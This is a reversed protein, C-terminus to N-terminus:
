SYARIQYVQARNLGYTKLIELELGMARISSFDHRAFSSLNGDVHELLHSHGLLDYYYLKYEKILSPISATDYSRPKKDFIFDYSPDFTIEVRSLDKAQEWKIELFEPYKFDTPQSVWLDPLKSPRQNATTVNQPDYPSPAPSIKLLPGPAPGPQESLVPFHQGYANSIKSDHNAKKRYLIVGPLSSRQIPISIAQSFNVELFHWGPELNSCKPHLEVWGETSGEVALTTSFLCPGPLNGQYGTGSLLRFEITESNELRLLLEIQDIKVDTVPFRLMFSESKVSSLCKGSDGVIWSNIVSSASVEAEGILNDLDEVPDLSTTHNLRSLERKVEDVYGPKSLTRPLRNRRICKAACFGVAEGMQSATSPHGLSMSARSTCSVHEGAWLLNKFKKSYLSRLPIEFPQPLCIRGDDSLLLSEGGDMLSRGVAISDPYRQGAIMDDPNVQHDGFGRHVEHNVAGSSVEELVLNSAVESLPSRNKLYDWAAWAIEEPEALVERNQGCWELLHEGTLSEELSKMWQIRAALLNEEWQVRVWDPCSFPIPKRKQAIRISTVISDRRSSAQKSKSDYENLDKGKEGPAGCLESLSGVGSCDIFYKAFFLYSKGESNSIARVAEIKDGTENLKSEYAYIRLFVRLRKEELMWSKLARSLGAYTGEPNERLLLANLEDMLGGERQYVYNPNPGNEFPLRSDGSVRGGLSGKRDLLAVNAGARAARVAACIGSM